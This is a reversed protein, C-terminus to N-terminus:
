LPIEGYKSEWQALAQDSSQVDIALHQGQPIRTQQQPPTMQPLQPQGQVQQQQQPQQQFQQPQVINGFEDFQQPQQAYSQQMVQPQQSQFQPNAIQGPPQQLQDAQVIRPDAAVQGKEDVYQGLYPDYTPPKQASTQTNEPAPRKGTEELYVFQLAQERPIWKGQLQQERRVQDVKENYNAYRPNDGYKHQYQLSDIQDMLYGQQNAFQEQMPGLAARIGAQIEQNIAEQVEPKFQSQRPPPQQGPTTRTLVDVQGRLQQNQMQIERMQQQIQELRQDPVGGQSPNPNNNNNGNM